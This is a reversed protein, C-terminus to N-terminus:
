EAPEAVAQPFRLKREIRVAVELHALADLSTPSSNGSLLGVTGPMTLWMLGGTTTLGVRFTRTPYVFASARALVELVGVHDGVGWGAGLGVTAYPRPLPGLRQEVGSRLTFTEREILDEYDFRHLLTDTGTYYTFNPYRVTRTLYLGEFWGQRRSKWPWTATLGLGLNRYEDLQPRGHERDRSGGVWTTGYWVPTSVMPARARETRVRPLTDPEFSTIGGARASGAALMCLLLMVRCKM